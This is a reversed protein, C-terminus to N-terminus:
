RAKESALEQLLIVAEGAKDVPVFLHDHYYASVPNVSIGEKALRTAVTAMFGVAELSSHVNLTMKKCEYQYDYAQAVAVELTTILTIGEAERFLMHVDSLRPLTANDPLTIFVYTPEHLVTTLTGLLKSLSLEGGRKDTSAM